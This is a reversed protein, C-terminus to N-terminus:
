FLLSVSIFEAFLFSFM